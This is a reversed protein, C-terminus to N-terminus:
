YIQLARALWRLFQVMSSIIRVPVRFAICTVIRHPTFRNTTPVKSWPQLEDPEPEVEVAPPPRVFPPEVVKGPLLEVGLPPVVVTEPPVYTVPPWDMVPPPFVLGPPDVLEPPPFV